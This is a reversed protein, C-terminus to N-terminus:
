RYKIFCFDPASAALGWCGKQIAKRIEDCSNQQINCASHTGSTVKSCDDALENAKDAGDTTMCAHTELFAAREQQASQGSGAPSSGGSNGASSAAAENQKQQQYQANQALKQFLSTKAPPQAPTVQASSGPNPRTADPATIPAPGSGAGQVNATISFGLKSRDGHKLSECNGKSAYGYSIAVDGGNIVGKYAGPPM